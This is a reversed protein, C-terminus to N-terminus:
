EFEDEFEDLGSLEEEPPTGDHVLYERRQTYADRLLAYPDFAGDLQDDIGLLMTREHVLWLGRLKSKVSSNGMWILPHIAGDGLLGFTSRVTRPGFLPLVVYPGRAIGWVAMTQGLDEDHIRMGLPTAPDFLGGIGITTNTVFRGTDSAAQRFKGQLLANTVTIPSELNLFFNNIGTKVVRPTITDYFVAVPRLLYKDATRNFRFTARNISEFPDAVPESAAKSHSACGTVGLLMVLVFLPLGTRAPFKAPRPM